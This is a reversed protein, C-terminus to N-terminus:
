ANKEDKTRLDLFTDGQRGLTSDAKPTDGRGHCGGFRELHSTDESLSEHLSIKCEEENRREANDCRNHASCAGDDAIADNPRIGDDAICDNLASAYCIFM